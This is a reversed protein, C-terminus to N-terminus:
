RPQVSEHHATRSASQHRPSSSRTDARSGGFRARGQWAAITQSRVIFVSQRPALCPNPAVAIVSASSPTTMAIAVTPCACARQTIGPRECLLADVASGADELPGLAVRSDKCAQIRDVPDNVQLGCAVDKIERVDHKGPVGERVDRSRVVEVAAEEDTRDVQTGALVPMRSVVMRLRRPADRIQDGVSSAGECPHAVVTVVWVGQADEILTPAADRQVPMVHLRAGYSEM